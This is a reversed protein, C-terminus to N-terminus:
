AQGVGVVAGPDCRAIDAAGDFGSGKPVRGGFHEEGATGAPEGDLVVDEVECSFDVDFERQMRKLVVVRERATLGGEAPADAELAVEARVAKDLNGNVGVGAGRAVSVESDPHPQRQGNQNQTEPINDQSDSRPAPDVQQFLVQLLM